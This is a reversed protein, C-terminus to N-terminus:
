KMCLLQLGSSYENEAELGKKFTLIVDPHDDIILIRKTFPSLKEKQQHEQQDPKSQPHSNNKLYKDEAPISGYRCQLVYNDCVGIKFKLDLNNNKHLETKIETNRM